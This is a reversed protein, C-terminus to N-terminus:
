KEKLIYPLALNAVIQYGATRLHIHDDTRGVNTQWFYTTSNTDSGTGIHPDAAENIIGDAGSEGALMWSNLDARYPDYGKWNEGNLTSRPLTRLYVEFGQYHLSAIITQLNVKTRVAPVDNYFDNYGGNLIVKNLKGSRYRSISRGVYGNTLLQGTTAGSKAENYVMWTPGLMGKLIASLNGVMPVTFYSMPAYGYGLSDGLIVCVNEQGVKSNTMQYNTIAQADADSITGEVIKLDYFWQLGGYNGTRHNGISLIGTRPEDGANATAPFTVGDASLVDNGAQFNVYRQHLGSATENTYLPFSDATYSPFYAQKGNDVYGLTPPYSPTDYRAPTGGNLAFGGLDFLFSHAQDDNTSAVSFMKPATLTFTADSVFRANLSQAALYPIGRVDWRLLWDGVARVDRKNGSKDYILTVKLDDGLETASTKDLKDGKFGIDHLIGNRDSVQISAGNYFGYTPKNLDYDAFFIDPLPKVSPIPKPLRVMRGKGQQGNIV